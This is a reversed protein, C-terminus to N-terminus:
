GADEDVDADGHLFREVKKAAQEPTFTKNSEGSLAGRVAHPSVPPDFLYRAGAALEDVSLRDAEKAEATPKTEPSM